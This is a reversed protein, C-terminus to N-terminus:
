YAVFHFINSGMGNLLNANIKLSSTFEVFKEMELVLCAFLTLM